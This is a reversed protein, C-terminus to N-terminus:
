EEDASYKEALKTVSKNLSIAALQLPLSYLIIMFVVVM